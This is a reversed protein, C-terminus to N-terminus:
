AACGIQKLRDFGDRFAGVLLDPSPDLAELEARGGGFGTAIALTHVDAGQGVLVDNLSDGIMWIGARDVGFGAIIHEIGRTDPKPRVVGTPVQAGPGLVAEFWGNLKLAKMVQLTVDHPKNTLVAQPVGHDKFYQLADMVGDYPEVGATPDAVYIRIFAAYVEAFPEDTEPMVAHEILHRAGHGVCALCQAQTISTLGLAERVRNVAHTINLSTDLLTGDLDYIVGTIM